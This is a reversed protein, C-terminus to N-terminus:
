GHITSPSFIPTHSAPFAIKEFHTTKGALPTLSSSPTPKFIKFPKPSVPPKRPPTGTIEYDAYGGHEVNWSALTHTTERSM